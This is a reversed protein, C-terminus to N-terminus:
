IHILSLVHSTPADAVVAGTTANPGIRAISFPVRTAEDYLNFWKQHLGGHSGLLEGHDSTRVIVASESGGDTIARRVQDIPGDVEAHLRYYLDRYQQGGKQYAREVAKAPGYTSPYSARYAIQAAPKSSLDEDATPADAVHPPDLPSSDELPNGRRAWAPFLVIDHPNVFSAVLLFPRQADAHGAARRAYRDQLWAVVRDRICM